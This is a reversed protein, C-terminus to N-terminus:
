GLEGELSDIRSELSNVDDRDVMSSIRDELDSELDDTYQQCEYRVLDGVFYWLVKGILSKM